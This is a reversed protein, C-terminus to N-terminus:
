GDGTRHGAVAAGEREFGLADQETGVLKGDITKGAQFQVGARDAECARAAEGGLAGEAHGRGRDGASGGGFVRDGGGSAGEFDGGGAAGAAGAKAFAEAGAEAQDALADQDVSVDGQGAAVKGEVGRRSVDDDATVEVDAAGELFQIVHEAKGAAAPDA